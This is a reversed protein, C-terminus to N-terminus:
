VVGCAVVCAHLAGTGSSLNQVARPLERPPAVAAAAKVVKYRADGCVAKTGVVFEYVCTQPEMAELLVAEAPARSGDRRVQAPMDGDVCALALTSRRPAKDARGGCPAGGDYLQKLAEGGGVGTALSVQNGLPYSDDQLFHRASPLSPCPLSRLVGRTPLFRATAFALLTVRLTLL